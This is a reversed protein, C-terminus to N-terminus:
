FSYLIPSKKTPWSFRRLDRYIAPRSGDPNPIRDDIEEFSDRMAKVWDDDLMKPFITLGVRKFEELHEELSKPDEPM